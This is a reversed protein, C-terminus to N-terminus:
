DACSRLPVPCSVQYLILAGSGLLLLVQKAIDIRLISFVLLLINVFLLILTLAVDNSDYGKGRCSRLALIFGKAGTVCNAIISLVLSPVFLDMERFSVLLPPRDLNAPWLGRPPSFKVLAPRSSAPVRCSARPFRSFPQLFFETLFNISQSRLSAPTRM